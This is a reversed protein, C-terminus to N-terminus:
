VNEREHNIILEKFGTNKDFERQFATNDIEGIIIEATTHVINNELLHGGFVNGDSDAVSIHLHLGGKSLTGNLSLIEYKNPKFLIRNEDALRINLCKLSGVCSLIFGASIANKKVFEQLYLKLDIGSTLRFIHTKM